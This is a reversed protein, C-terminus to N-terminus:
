RIDQRIWNLVSVPHIYKSVAVKTWLSNTNLLQWGLKAALAQSFSDLREIGWGGWSKPLALSDWSTWAFIRGPQNGKWLFRCCLNQLCSLIGRPIWALTMWYVPTAELMAKILVLPGVRSLYKHYWINLRKEVKSILWTWDAIKYGIPKLRYGLYKLGDELQVFRRLAFQVEHHSCGTATITSKAENIVMGTAKLFTGLARHFVITDGIGGNLLILLDDVFLLHSLTCDDTIKIGRIRGMKCEERIIQSLGEMILLFLLPSLPCGQRLGREAHFFPSASGNILVSFSVNSICCFIWKIFSYPFGLHTLLMRLYLWNVRDFAKSLDIKLIM